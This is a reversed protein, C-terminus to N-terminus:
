GSAGAPRRRRTDATAPTPWRRAEALELIPEVPDASFLAASATLQASREPGPRALRAVAAVLEADDAPVTTVGARSMSAINDRGHGPIPRYSVIPVGTAFAELSTLGGANEVLVDTAAMIEPMRDTWGLVRGLGQSELRRRLREDQGCVTVVAFRGDAVLPAVTGAIDGIGWSGAVILVLPRDDPVGLWARTAARRGPDVMASSRGFAPDVAPGPALVPGDVQRRANEAAVPHIALNLDIAPHVARPHVAFDTLFNVAPVTIRGEERLRGVVLTAFSYTSVVVDPRHREVWALTRAGSLAREFRVFPGWLRPHRYFLQYTSEYSEPMTRLQFLYFSRWARALARPFADLFDVVIAEGGRAEVRRALERAAGEHGAGMSASIVLVRVVPPFNGAPLRQV